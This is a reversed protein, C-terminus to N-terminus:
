KLITITYNPHSVFILYIGTSISILKNRNIKVADHLAVHVM